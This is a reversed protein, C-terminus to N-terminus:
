AVPHGFTTIVRESHARRCARYSEYVGGDAHTQTKVWGVPTPADAETTYDNTVYAVGNRNKVSTMNHAADYAYEAVSDMPDTVKWLRSNSDYTYRWTRGINDTIQSILPGEYTFEFWRGHPPTMRAVPGIGGVLQAMTITNGHRDRIAQLPASDGFVYVTGDKLRLDWGAGNWALM